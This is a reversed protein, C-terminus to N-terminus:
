NQLCFRNRPGAEVNEIDFWQREIMREPLHIIDHDRRVKTIDALLVVSFIERINDLVDAGPEIALRDPHDLRLSNPPTPAVVPAEILRGGWLATARSSLSSVWCNRPSTTPSMRACPNMSHSRIWSRGQATPM